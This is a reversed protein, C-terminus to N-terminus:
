AIWEAICGGLQWAKQLPRSHRVKHYNKTAQYAIEGCIKETEVFQAVQRQRRRQVKLVVRHRQRRTQRKTDCLLVRRVDSDDSLIPADACITSLFSKFPM